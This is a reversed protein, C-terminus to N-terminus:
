NHRQNAWRGHPRPVVSRNRWRYRHVLVPEAAGVGALRPGLERVYRREVMPGYGMGAPIAVDIPLM